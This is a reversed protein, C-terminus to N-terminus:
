HYHIVHLRAEFLMEECMAILDPRNCAKAYEIICLLTFIMHEGHTGTRSEFIWGQVNPREIHSITHTLLTENGPLSHAKELMQKVYTRIEFDTCGFKIDSLYLADVFGLVRNDFILNQRKEEFKDKFFFIYVFGITLFYAPLTALVELM